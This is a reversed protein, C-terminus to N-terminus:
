WILGAMAPNRYYAGGSTNSYARMWVRYVNGPVLGGVAWPVTTQVYQGTTNGWAVGTHSDAIVNGGTSQNLLTLYLYVYANALMDAAYNATIYLAGRPGATLDVYSLYQHTPSLVAGTNIGNSFFPTPVISRGNTAYTGSTNYDATTIIGHSLSFASGNFYIYNGEGQGFRVVGSNSAGAQAKLEEFVSQRNASNIKIARHFAAGDWYYLYWNNREDAAEYDAPRQTQHWGRGNADMVLGQTLFNQAPSSDFQVSGVFRGGVVNVKGALKTDVESKLYIDAGTFPTQAIVEVADGANCNKALTIQTTSTRTYDVEPMLLVGNVFVQELGPTYNLPRGYNDNGVLVNSNNAAALRWRTVAVNASAETWGTGAGRYVRM